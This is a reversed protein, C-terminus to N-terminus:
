LTRSINKNIFLQYFRYTFVLTFISIGASILAVLLSSILSPPLQGLQLTIILPAIYTLLAFIFLSVTRGKGNFWILKVAESFSSNELVYSYPALCLRVFLYCGVLLSLLGTIGTGANVVYSAGAISFPLVIIFNLLLFIPLKKIAYSLATMLETKRQNSILTITSLLWLVLMSNVIQGVVTLFLFTQKGEDTQLDSSNLLYRFFLNDVVIIALFFLVIQKQNLIFNWSDQLIKFFDVPM